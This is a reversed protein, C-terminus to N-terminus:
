RITPLSNSIPFSKDLCDLLEVGARGAVLRSVNLAGLNIKNITVHVFQSELVQQYRKGINADVHVGEKDALNLILERRPFPGLGPLLMCANRWWAALTSAICQSADLHTILGVITKGKSILLKASIPCYFTVTRVGHPVNQPRQVVGELIPLELYDQRLQKLLPKQNGTEHVLV